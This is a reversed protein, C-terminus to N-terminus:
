SRRRRFFRRWFPPSRLERDLRREHEALIEPGVSNVIDEAQDLLAATEADLRPPDDPQPRRALSGQTWGADFGRREFKPCGAPCRWPAEPALDLRCMHVTEGTAYTRTEYHRCDHRMPM